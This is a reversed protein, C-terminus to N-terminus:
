SGGSGSALWSLAPLNRTVAFAVAVALLLPGTRAPWRWRPLVPRGLSRLLWIGWVAVLAPVSVTFLLNHDVAAVVDAQTLGHVARLSGCFPCDLGTAFALPCLPVHTATPDVVAVGATGVVAMAGVTVPGTWARSGDTPTGDAAHVAGGPAADQPAAARTGTETAM